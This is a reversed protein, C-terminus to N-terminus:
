RAWERALTGYLLVDPQWGLSTLKGVEERHLDNHQVVLQDQEMANFM